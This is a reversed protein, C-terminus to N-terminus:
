TLPFFIIFETGKDIESSVFVKSHHEKIIQDAIALGLGNGGTNKSRAKDVRYFREFLHPIHEKSIGIGTDKVSLIINQTTKTCGLTICGGEPTYKLANDILIRLLEKILAEDGVLMVNDDIKSLLEHEDDIFSTQKLIDKCLLSLNFTKMEVKLTNKDRRSLFLLKELLNKMNATEETISLISEELIKPDKSGWRCLMESYGQIIAIPTRLEHSADSVFQKQREVFIQIRDMMENFTLTLDKLEDKSRNTDLRADLNNGNINKVAETLDRLPKLMKKSLFIGIFFFLFVFLPLFTKLGSLYLYIISSADLNRHTHTYYLLLTGSTYFFIVFFIIFLLSYLLNFKFSISFRFKNFLLNLVKYILLFIINILALIFKIAFTISRKLKVIINENHKFM